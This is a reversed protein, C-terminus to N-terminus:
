RSRRAVLVGATQDARRQLISEFIEEARAHIQDLQKIRDPDHGVLRDIWESYGIHAREDAVIYEYLRATVPDGLEKGIYTVRYRHRETARGEIVRQLVLLRELPDSLGIMPALILAPIPPVPDPVGGLEEMRRWSMEAHRAEDWLQRALDLRMAWPLEPAEALLRGLVDLAEMEGYANSYLSHRLIDNPDDGMSTVYYDEVSVLNFRGDRAPASQDAWVPPGSSRYAPQSASPDEARVGGIAALAARLHREWTTACEAARGATVSQRLVEQGWRIHDDEEAIM